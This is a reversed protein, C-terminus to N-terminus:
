YIRQIGLLVNAAYPELKASYEAMQKEAVYFDVIKKTVADVIAYFCYRASFGQLTGFVIKKQISQYTPIAFVL